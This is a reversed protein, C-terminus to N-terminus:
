QIRVPVLAFGPERENKYSAIAQAIAPAATRPLPMWTWGEGSITGIGAADGAATVYFAQGLGLYVAAVEAATGDALTRVESTVTIERHFKNVASLVALLNGMRAGLSLKSDAPDQPFQQSLPKVRERIPEPLLALLDKARGELDGIAQRLAATIQQLEAHRAVLEGKQRDVDAISQEAEGIKGRLSGISRQVIDIRQQLLDKGVRWDNREKGILKRAEVWQQLSSRANDVRAGTVEASADTAQAVLAPSLLGLLAAAALSRGAPVRPPLSASPGRPTRLITM